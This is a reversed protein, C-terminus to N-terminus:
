LRRWRRLWNLFVAYGDISTGFARNVLPRSEGLLAEGITSVRSTSVVDVEPHAECFARVMESWVGGDRRDLVQGHMGAAGAERARDVFRLAMTTYASSGYAGRLLNAHYHAPFRSLDVDPAERWSRVALWRLTRRARADRAYGGALLRALLARVIPPAVSRAMVRQFRATDVCGLLYGVVEGDREAVFASEPELDTYYRTWYDAFLRADDLFTAHGRNRFATRCAIERVRERDSPRYARVELAASAAVATM